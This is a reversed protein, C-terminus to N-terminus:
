EFSVTRTATDAGWDLGLEFESAGDASPATLELAYTSDTAGEATFSTRTPASSTGTVQTVFDMPDGDNALVLKATFDEGAPVTSPVVVDTVEFDVTRTISEVDRADFEWAASVEGADLEVGGTYPTLENPTAYAAVFQNQGGGLPFVPGSFTQENLRLTANETVFSEYGDVNDVEFTVLVFRTTNGAHVTYDAGDRSVVFATAGTDAVTVAREGSLNVEEGVALPGDDATTATTTTTTTTRTQATTTSPEDDQGSTCGALALPVATAASAIFRRRNM